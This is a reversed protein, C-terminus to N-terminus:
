LWRSERYDAAPPRIPSSASPPHPNKSSDGRLAYLAPAVFVAPLFAAVSFKSALALGFFLGALAADRRRGELAVGILFLFSLAGFFTFMVDTTYFHSLQIHIVAFTTFAAALLGVRSSFLRRGILFVVLITGTDLLASLVRGILTMTYLDTKDVGPFLGVLWSGSELLYFPFSGYDYVGPGTRVTPRRPVLSSKDVDFLELPDKFSSPSLQQATWVISREDPHLSFDSGSDWNIGYLRIGLAIVLLSALTLVIARRRLFDATIVGLFPAPRSVISAADM